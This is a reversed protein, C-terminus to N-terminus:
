IAELLLFRESVQLRAPVLEFTAIPVTLYNRLYASLAEINLSTTLGGTICDDLECACSSVILKESEVSTRISEALDLSSVAELAQIERARYDKRHLWSVGISM